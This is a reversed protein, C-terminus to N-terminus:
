VRTVLRGDLAEKELPLLGAVDVLAGVLPEVALLALAVVLFVLEDVAVAGEVERRRDAVRLLVVEKAERLVAVGQDLRDEVRGVRVVVLDLRDRAPVLHEALQALP